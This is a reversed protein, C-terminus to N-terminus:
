SIRSFLSDVKKIGCWDYLVKIGKIGTCFALFEEQFESPWSSFTKSLEQNSYIYKLVKEKTQITPFFENLLNKSM